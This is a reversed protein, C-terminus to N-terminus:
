PLAPPTPLAPTEPPSLPLAPKRTGGAPDAPLPEVPPPVVPVERAPGAEKAELKLLREELSRVTAQLLEVQSRLAAIDEMQGAPAGGAPRALNDLVEGVRRALPRDAAAGGLLGGIAPPNPTPPPPTTRADIAVPSLRITRRALTIGRYYSVEVEQGPRSAGIIAVLEEATNVRQGDVAVIVGGLPLGARDAPGGPRIAAILAGRTVSLGNAVRAAETLPVVSVGLSARAAADAPARLVSSGEAAPTGPISTGPAEALPEGPPPGPDEAGLRNVPPTQRSVLTATLSLADNGRLLTFQAKQGASVQDLQAQFDDLNKVPQGNIATIIDDKKLGAAEAPSAAKTALIVVGQQGDTEDATLGLYGPATAPTPAGNAPPALRTAADNLRQELKKLLQASAGTQLLLVSLLGLLGIKALRM